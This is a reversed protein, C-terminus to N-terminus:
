PAGGTEARTETPAKTVSETGGLVAPAAQIEGELGIQDAEGALSARPFRASDQGGGGAGGMAGPAVPASQGTATTASVQTSKTTPETTTTSQSYVPARYNSLARPPLTPMAISGIPMGGLGPMAKPAAAAAATAAQEAALAQEPAIKPPEQHRWPTALPEAATEYSRMVRSAVAKAVDAEADNDAAIARIPAGLMAGMSELTAQVQQIQQIDATNPMTLKAVEYAAVQAQLRAANATATGAADVLWDRLTTVKEMVEGSRGSQWATRLSALVREYELVAAGFVTALRAWEAAAEAMPVSGPGTTLDRALREPPRAEWVVGTFGPKPPEIM